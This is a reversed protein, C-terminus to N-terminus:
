KEIIENRVKDAIGNMYREVALNGVFSEPLVNLPMEEEIRKGIELFLEPKRVRTSIEYIMYNIQRENLSIPFNQKSLTEFIENKVSSNINEWLDEEKEKRASAMDYQKEIFKKATELDEIKPNNKTILNVKQLIEEKNKLAKNKWFVYEEKEKKLQLFEFPVFYDNQTKHFHYLLFNAFFSIIFFIGFICAYVRFLEHFNRTKDSTKVKKRCDTVCVAIGLIITIYFLIRLFIYLPDKPLTPPSTALIKQANVTRELLENTENYNM